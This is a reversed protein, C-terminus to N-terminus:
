AQRTDHKNFTIELKRKFLKSRGLVVYGKLSLFGTPRTIDFLLTGGAITSNRRQRSSESSNKSSTFVIEADSSFQSLFENRQEPTTLKKLYHEKVFTSDLELTKNAKQHGDGCGAVAKGDVARQVEDSTNNLLIFDAESSFQSVFASRQEPTMRKLYHEEVFAPDM